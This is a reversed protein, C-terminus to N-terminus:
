KTFFLNKLFGVTIVGVTIKPLFTMGLIVIVLLVGTKLCGTM